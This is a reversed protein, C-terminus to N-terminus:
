DLVGEMFTVEGVGFGTEGVRLCSGGSIPCQIGWWVAARGEDARFDAGEEVGYGEGWWLESIPLM